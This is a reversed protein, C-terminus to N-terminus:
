KTSHCLTRRGHSPLLLCLCLKGLLHRTEGPHGQSLKARELYHRCQRPPPCALFSPHPTNSVGARFDLPSRFDGKSAPQCSVWLVIVSNMGGWLDWLFPDKEVVPHPTGEWGLFFPHGLGESPEEAGHELQHSLLLSGVMRILQWIVAPQHLLSIFLSRPGTLSLSGLPEARVGLRTQNWSGEEGM